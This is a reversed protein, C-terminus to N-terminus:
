PVLPLDTKAFDEGVCLLPEGAVCVTAYTLCDGFNLAAQHRGKGYRLFARVAITWHEGDCPLVVLDNAQVFRGLLTIGSPGLRSALVIGTEVLTPSGVGSAPHEALREILREHEPEKLLMAVIASSDLIL